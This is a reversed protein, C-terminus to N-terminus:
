SSHEFPVYIHGRVQLLDEFHHAALKKMQSANNSFRQIKDKGFPAILRFRDMQMARLYYATAVSFIVWLALRQDLENVSRPSHASLIRVIHTFLAKWVGLEVEHLLDVTLLSYVNLRPICNM